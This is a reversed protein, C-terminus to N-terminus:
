QFLIKSKAADLIRMNALISRMSITPLVRNEFMIRSVVTYKRLTPRERSVAHRLHMVRALMSVCRRNIINLQGVQYM